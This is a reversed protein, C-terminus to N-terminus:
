WDPSDLDGAVAIAAALPDDKAAAAARKRRAGTKPGSGFLDVSWDVKDMQTDTIQKVAEEMEDLSVSVRSAMWGGMM